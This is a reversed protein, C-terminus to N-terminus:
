LAYRRLLFYHFYLLVGTLGISLLSIVFVSKTLGIAQSIPGILWPFLTSGVFGSTTLIGTVFGISNPFINGALALMNPYIYSLLLGSCAIFLLILSKEKSLFSLAIFLAGGAAGIILSHSLNNKYFFRGFFWRGGIMTLWFISINYSAVATPVGRIKVLFLPIWSTFSIEIGVYLFISFVIPWFIRWNVLKNVGPNDIVERTKSFIAKGYLRKNWFFIPLPLSFLGMLFFVLYWKGSHSLIIGILLSSALCGLSVFMHLVNLYKARARKFIESILSDLGTHMIGANFGVFFLLIFLVILSDHLLAIGVLSLSLFLSSFTLLPRARYTRWFFAIAFTALFIGTFNLAVPLGVQALKLQFSNSIPVLLPGLFSLVMGINFMGWYSAIILRWNESSFKKSMDLNDKAVINKV